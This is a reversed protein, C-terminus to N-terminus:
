QCSECEENDLRCQPIIKESEIFDEVEQAGAISPAKDARSVAQLDSYHNAAYRLRLKDMNATILEPLTSGILNAMGQIYFLLDGLEERVNAVDLEKRYIVAKKIADLLEGAEGSIGIAMHLMECDKSTLESRIIEGSKSMREVFLSFPIQNNDQIPATM